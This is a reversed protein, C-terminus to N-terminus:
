PELRVEINVDGSITDLAKEMLEFLYLNAAQRPNKPTTGITVNYQDRLGILIHPIIIELCNELFPLDHSHVQWGSITFIVKPQNYRAVLQANKEQYSEAFSPTNSAEKEPRDFM